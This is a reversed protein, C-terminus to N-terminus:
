VVGPTNHSVFPSYANIMAIDLCQLPSHYPQTLHMYPAARVWSISLRIDNMNRGYFLFQWTWDRGLSPYSVLEIERLNIERVRHHRIEEAMECVLQHRPPYGVKYDMM